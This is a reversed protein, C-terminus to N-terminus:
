PVCIQNRLVVDFYRRPEQIISPFVESIIQGHSRRDLQIQGRAFKLNRLFALTASRNMMDIQEVHFLGVLHGIEHAATQALTLVVNNLSSIASTWCAQGRGQFSGVYVVAVDDHVLNGPDVNTGRPLVEGFVVRVQCEPRTPDPPPLAADNVDDVEALVRQPSFTLRSFSESTNQPTESVVEIPTGDFIQQLVRVVEERVSAEISELFAKDEITGDVPDWLGPETLFGDEFDVVILQRSVAEGPSVSVRDVAVTATQESTAVDATYVIFLFFTGPDCVEYTFPEGVGGGGVIVATSGKEEELVVMLVSRATESKVNIQLLDGPNLNGLTAINAMAMPQSAGIDIAPASEFISDSNPDFSLGPCGALVLLFLSLIAYGLHYCARQRYCMIM